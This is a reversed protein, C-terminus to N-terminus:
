MNLQREIVAIDQREQISYIAELDVPHRPNRHPMLVLEAMDVHLKNSKDLGTEVMQKLTKAYSYGSNAFVKTVFKKRDEGNLSMPSISLREDSITTYSAALSELVAREGLPAAALDAPENSCAALLLVAALLAFSKMSKFINM